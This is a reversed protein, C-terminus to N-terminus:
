KLEECRKGYFSSYWIKYKRGAKLNNRRSFSYTVLIMSGNEFKLETDTCEWAGTARISLLKGEIINEIREVRPPFLVDVPVDKVKWVFLAILISMIIGVTLGIWHWSLWYKIEWWISQYWNM